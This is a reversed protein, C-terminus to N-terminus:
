TTIQSLRKVKDLDQLDYVWQHSMEINTQSTDSDYGEIAEDEQVDRSTYQQQIDEVSKQKYTNKARKKRAQHQVEKPHEDEIHEEINFDPDDDNEDM